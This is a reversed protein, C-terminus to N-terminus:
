MVRRNLDVRFKLGDVLALVHEIERVWCVDVVNRHSSSIVIVLLLKHFKKVEGVRGTM